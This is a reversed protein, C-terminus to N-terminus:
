VRKRRWGAFLGLTAATASPLVGKAFARVSEVQGWLWAQLTEFRGAIAEWSVDILGAYHLGFAVLFAFGIVTVAVTLVSRLAFAVAFGVFFSFGMRFALPATRRAAPADDSSQNTGPTAMLGSAPGTATSDRGLEAVSATPAEDPAAVWWVVSVLMALMAVGLLKWSSGPLQHREKIRSMSRTM